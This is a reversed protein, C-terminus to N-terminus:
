NAHEDPQTETFIHLNLYSDVSVRQSPYVVTTTDMQEIIAPGVLAHGHKFEERRYIPTLVYEGLTEFYVPRMSFPQPAGTAGEAQPQLTAKPLLGIAAIRYTVFEVPAVSNHYGYKRAHQQHFAQVAGELDGELLAELDVPIALEYNQGQYRAEVTAQFRWHDAPVGEQDLLAQAEDMMDSFFGQIASLNEPLPLLKHSRVFDAKIDSQLLGQACMLGPANPIIVRPIRLEKALAAAHLPGAGGFAVLAFERPDYGREVTVVRLARAMNANVVDVVGQAAQVVTLHSRRCLHEEIAQRAVDEDLKMQGNLLSGAGLRGLVVNADTVTPRTGGRLYCAPGPVAGASEPGVKLAGGPDLYALSGGGAGIATIDIMQTRAPFGEVSRENAVQPQGEVILSIDASTGGMDFTILNPLELLRSLQTAAVVGASPGSLATKVPRECTERVSIIGGNSQMIYPDVRIGVEAVSRQFSQMYHEVVPGLYANLITTSLRPYERFEPVIEHSASIYFGEVDEFEERIVRVAVKENEPNLYSFLFCVAIARAGAARARRCLERVQGEDVRCFIEGTALTRESVEYRLRGPVIPKPKGQRLDYLSPRTQRGIEVLDVIGETTFLATRAGKREILANTAVTTGHVLYDVEHPRIGHDELIRKIGSIIAIAPNHPTSPLKHLYVRQNLVDVLTIDTFTGGVDAGVMYRMGKVAGEM